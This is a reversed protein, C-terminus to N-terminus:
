GSRGRAATWLSAGSGGVAVDGGTDTRLVVAGVQRLLALAQPSPHGYDNNAGASVAAVRPALLQHLAPDQRASGHHAAKLVDLRGPWPPPSAQLAHRLGAQASPELDGLALVRLGGVELALVASADNAESGEAEEEGTPRPAHDPWLVRWAVGGSTGSRGALAASVPVGAAALRRVTARAPGVPEALPGVLAQTVTRGALVGDLGDVHDAHFHTLVLLDVRTVGLRDLCGRVAGPEPGADVVVASSPGSALVLADGQGVDCAVVAWGPPPWAGGRALPGPPGTLALVGAGALAAAVLLARRSRLRWWRALVLAAATLAALAVAGRWGQPWPLTSAPVSAATRAVVAIWATALGATRAVLEAGLPWVPALLTAVLGLVTAPAVAPAALLNAPVATLPVGPSLLLVVPACVAQAAVPVALALALWRPLRRALVASWPPALVLLAGTALVSLAFGYSRGLWPDAVLLVVAAAGLAPVGAGRRATALGLLGVAGMVGARLVSPEPGVLAVFGALAAAAVLLRARRRVGVLVALGLVAGTVLATNSGSVATLHTLGTARMAEELDPPLTSTDGVVLGPLLGGADDPLPQSATRLGRRLDARVDDAPPPAGLVRPPGRVLLLARVDDGPDAAALRGSAAVQEGRRAHAWAPGGIALVPARAGAATGRGTVRRVDLRVLWRQADADDAHVARAAGAPDSRVPRPDAAVRAEVEVTASRDALRALLGADRVTGSALVSLAVAAGAAAALPVVGGSRRGRALAARALAVLAVAAATGGAAAVLPAPAAVAWGACAWALVAAPVLRLDLGPAPRPAGDGVGDGVGDSM